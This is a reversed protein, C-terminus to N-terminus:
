RPQGLFYYTPKTAFEPAPFTAQRTRTWKLHFLDVFPEARDPPPKKAEPAPQESDM